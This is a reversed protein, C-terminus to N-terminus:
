SDEEESLQDGVRKCQGRWDIIKSDLSKFFFGKPIM